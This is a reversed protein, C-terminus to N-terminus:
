KGSTRKDRSRKKASTSAQMLVWPQAEITTPSPMRHSSPVGTEADCVVSLNEFTSNPAPLSMANWPSKAKTAVCLLPKWTTFTDSTVAGTSTATTSQLPFSASTRIIPARRTAVMLECPSSPQGSAAGEPPM